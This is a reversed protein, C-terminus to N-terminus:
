GSFSFSSKKRMYTEVNKREALWDNGKLSVSTDAFERGRKM